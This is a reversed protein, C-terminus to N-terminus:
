VLICGCNKGLWERAKDRAEPMIFSSPPGEYQTAKLLRDIVEVAEKQPVIAADLTSNIRASIGTIVKDRIRFDNVDMGLARLADIAVMRAVSETREADHMWVGGDTRTLQM